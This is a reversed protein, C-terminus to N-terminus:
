YNGTLMICCVCVRLSVSLDGTYGLYCCLRLYAMYSRSFPLLTSYQESNHTPLSFLSVLCISISRQYYPILKLSCWSFVATYFWNLPIALTRFLRHICTYAMPFLQVLCYAVEQIQIYYRSSYFLGVLYTSAIMLCMLCHLSVSIMWPFPHCIPICKVNVLLKNGVWVMCHSPEQSELELM